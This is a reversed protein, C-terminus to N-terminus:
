SALIKVIKLWEESIKQKAKVANDLPTYHMRNNVIGVMVNHKGEILCEVASYGMRSAILRDMSSPSGGRQIHGLVAVRIDFGPIREKIVKALDNAGGFDDGEAVVVINVLKRRKEKEQLSALVQEVDTKREPILIHEAGTGIGSHLAIYGADRGMVEIIFLRDHADATDRIKDIAEIATNVATDFGITFDTGAIDKDITGPIGICPIDYENSFIQAGKFSGDGGIIVLGDIEHKKLNSYAKSRGETTMFEM